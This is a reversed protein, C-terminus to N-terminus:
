FWCIFLDDCELKKLDKPVDLTVILGYNANNKKM